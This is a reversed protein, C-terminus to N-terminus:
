SEVNTEFGLHLDPLFYRVLFVSIHTDAGKKWGNPYFALAYISGEVIMPDSYKIGTLRREKYKEFVFSGTAWEDKLGDGDSEIFDPKPLSM